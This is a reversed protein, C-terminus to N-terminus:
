LKLMNDSKIIIKLLREQQILRQNEKNFKKYLLYNWIYDNMATKLVLQATELSLKAQHENQKEEDDVRPTGM